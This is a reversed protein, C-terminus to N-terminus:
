SIREGFLLWEQQIGTHVLGSLMKDEIVVAPHYVLRVAATNRDIYKSQISVIKYELPSLQTGPKALM